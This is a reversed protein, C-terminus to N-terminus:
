TATESNIDMITKLLIKSIYRDDMKDLFSQLRKLM